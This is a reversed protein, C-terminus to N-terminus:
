IVYRINKKIGEVENKKDEFGKRGMM